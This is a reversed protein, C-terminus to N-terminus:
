GMSFCWFIITRDQCAVRWFAPFSAPTDLPSQRKYQVYYEKMTGPPLFREENGEAVSRGPLIKISKRMKRPKKPKTSQAEVAKEASSFDAYPEIALEQTLVHEGEDEDPLTSDRVDPLTEAISCYVKHLFSTVDSTAEVSRTQNRRPMKLYRLDAPPAPRGAQVANYLKQFRGSGAVPLEFPLKLHSFSKGPSMFNSRRNWSAAEVFDLLCPM